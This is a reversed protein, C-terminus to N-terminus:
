EEDRIQTSAVHGNVYKLVLFDTQISNLTIEWMVFYITPFSVM